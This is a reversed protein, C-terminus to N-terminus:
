SEFEPCYDEPKAFVMSGDSFRYTSAMAALCDKAARGDYAMPDVRLMYRKVTGDPEPTSNLCDIYVMSEDEAVDKVLLRATRLGVIPHDDACQDVVKAGSDAVFREPGYRDILVRRLEANSEREIEEVSIQAPNEIIYIRTRPIRVGHWAYMSWGDRYEVAPGNANHLRNQADRHISKPKDGIVLVDTHWWTWGCSLVIERADDTGSIDLGCVNQYFDAWGISGAWFLSSIGYNYFGASIQKKTAEGGVVANAGKISVDLPSGAFIVQKPPELGSAKYLRLAAAKAREYDAPETSLGIKVWKEVYTPIQSEMEPTLKELM